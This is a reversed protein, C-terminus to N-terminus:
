IVGNRVQLHAIANATSLPVRAYIGRVKQMFGSVRGIDIVQPESEVAVLLNDLLQDLIHETVGRRIM